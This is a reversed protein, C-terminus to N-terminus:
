KFYIEFVIQSISRYHFLVTTLSPERLCALIATLPQQLYNLMITKPLRFNEIEPTLDSTSIEPCVSTPDTKIIEPDLKPRQSLELCSGPFMLAGICLLPRLGM